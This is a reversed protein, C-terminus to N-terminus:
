SPSSLLCFNDFYLPPMLWRCDIIGGPPISILFFVSFSFDFEIFFSFGIIIYRFLPHMM